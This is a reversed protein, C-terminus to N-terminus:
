ARFLWAQHIQSGAFDPPVTWHTIAKAKAALGSDLKFRRKNTSFYLSGQPALRALCAEILAAHDREVDLVDEMRKSNSFSPPDLLILDWKERSPEKLWAVVDAQLFRHAGAPLQNHRFNRLAWQLYTNSMDISTVESAGGIAAAVSLAGTYCFLNLVRKGQCVKQLERRLPRHDLFLGTDLYRRLNVEFVQKGERVLLVEDREDDMIEYQQEGKQRRRRKLIINEPPISLLGALADRAEAHHREIIEPNEPAEPGQDSLVCFNKYLDILYPYAPIDHQYLRWAEVNQSRFSAALRRHNKELRHLFESM